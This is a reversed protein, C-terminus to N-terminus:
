QFTYPKIKRVVDLITGDRAEVIAVVQDEWQLSDPEGVLEYAKEQLSEITVHKIGAKDLCEIIDPRLPNVAIGYDTVLVDVCDGPTTVTVVDKCVTAMRGRTLPTVIGVVIGLQRLTPIMEQVGELEPSITIYNIKGGSLQQYHRILPIDNKKLLHEPMAGKYEKALFPGELHIGVLDAGNQEMTEHRKFQGICWETQEQTDTLISCQWATTGHSAMFLSIKELDEATAGNVDVGVAGHTHTDIFGPAIKLGAADVQHGDGCPADPPLIRLKGGEMCVTAPRFTHELYVLGNVLYTKEM